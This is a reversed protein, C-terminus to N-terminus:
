FASCPASACGGVPSWGAITTSAVNVYGCVSGLELGLPGGSSIIIVVDISYAAPRFCPTLGYRTM